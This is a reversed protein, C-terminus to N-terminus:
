VHVSPLGCQPHEDIGMSDFRQLCAALLLRPCHRTVDPNDTRIALLKAQCDAVAGEVSLRAGCTRRKVSLVM